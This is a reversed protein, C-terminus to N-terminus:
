SYFRLAGNQTNTHTPPTKEEKKKKTVKEKYHFDGQSCFSQFGRCWTSMVMDVSSSDQRVPETTLKSTETLLDMRTSKEACRPDTESGAWSPTCAQSCPSPTGRAQQTTALAARSLLSARWRLRPTPRSACLSLFAVSARHNKSFEYEERPHACM